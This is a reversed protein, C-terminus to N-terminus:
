VEYPEDTWKLDPLLSDDIKKFQEGYWQTGGVDRKPKDVYAFLLGDKDRAIYVFESPLNLKEKKEVPKDVKEVLPEDTKVTKSTKKIRDLEGYFWWGHGNEVRGELSHGGMNEDFEVGISSKGSVVRVTGAIEKHGNVETCTVRDGVAFDNNTLLELQNNYGYRGHGIRATGACEHGVVFADDFDVGVRDDGCLEVVTGTKGALNVGDFGKICRVRDGVKFKM